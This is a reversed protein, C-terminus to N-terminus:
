EWRELIDAFSTLREGISTRYKELIVGSAIFVVAAVGGVVLWWGGTLDPAVGEILPIMVVMLLSATIAGLGVIARRRVHSLTGWVLLALGEGGLLLGYLMSTTVMDRAALALPALMVIWEALRLWDAPDLHQRQRRHREVEIMILLLASVAAVTAHLELSWMEDILILLAALWILAALHMIHPTRATTAFSAFAGGNVILTWGLEASPLGFLSIAGVMGFLTFGGALILWQTRRQATGIGAMGAAVVGVLSIVILMPVAWRDNSTLSAVVLGGSGVFALPALWGADLEATDALWSRNALVYVGASFAVGAGFLYIDRTSLLEVARALSIGGFVVTVLHTPWIWVNVLSRDSRFRTVLTAGVAAVFMIGFWLWAQEPGLQQREIAFGVVGISLGCSVFAMWSTRTVTAVVAFAAMDLGLLVMWTLYADLASLGISAAVGSIAIAAQALVAVPLEWLVIHDNETGVASVLWVTLLTMALIGMTWVVEIWDLELGRLTLGASIGILSTAVWIAPTNGRITGPVGVLVAEIGVISAWVLAADQHTFSWGAQIGAGIFTIQGLAAMPPVWLDTWSAEHRTLWRGLAAASVVTGIALLTFVIVPDALELGRLTLGASIGILSTAVWIAPTNRRITGPIGVLAAEISAIGALVLTADPVSFSTLAHVGAAVFGVQGLAVLPLVWRGTWEAHGYKLWSGLAIGSLTTGGAVAITVVAVANLDLWVTGAGFTAGWLIVAVWPLVLGQEGERRLEAMLTESVAVVALSATLWPGLEWAGASILMIGALHMWVDEARIVTLVALCLASWAMTAGPEGQNFALTISGAMVVLASLVTVPAASGLNKHSGTRPIAASVAVLTAIFPVLWVADSRIEDAFVDVYAVLLYAWVVWVLVGIRHVVLFALMSVAAAIAWAWLWHDDNVAGIIGIGVTMTGLAGAVLFWLRLETRRLLVLAAATSVLTVSIASALLSRYLHENAIGAESAGVVVAAFTLAWSLGSAVPANVAVAVLFTAVAGSALAVLLMSGDSTSIAIAGVTTAFGLVIVVIRLAQRQVAMAVIGYGIALASLPLAFRSLEITFWAIQRTALIAFPTMSVFAVIVPVERMWLREPRGAVLQEIFPGHGRDLLIAEVGCVAVVTAWAVLAADWSGLSAVIAGLLALHGYAGNPVTWHSISAAYSAGILVLSTAILVVTVIMSVGGADPDAAAMAFAIAAGDTTLVVFPLRLAWPFVAAASVIALIGLAMGIEDYSYPDRAMQIAVGSAVATAGFMAAPITAFSRLREISSPLFRAGAAAVAAVLFITPVHVLDVIRAVGTGALVFTPIWLEGLATTTSGPYPVLSGTYRRVPPAVARAAAAIAMVSWVVTSSVPDTFALAAGIVISGRAIWTAAESTGRILRDIVAIAFGYGVLAAGVWGLTTEFSLSLVLAVGASAYSAIRLAAALSNRTREGLGEWAFGAGSSIALVAALLAAAWAGPSALDSLGVNGTGSGLADNYAFLLAFGFVAPAGVVGIRVTRVSITRGVYTTRGITAIILGAGIAALVTLMQPGSMGVTWYLGLAGVVAWLMPAVGYAYIPHRTSLLFYVGACVVGVIAYGTWRSSGEQNPIWALPFWTGIGEKNNWDAGDQFLASLMIPLILAGILGVANAAVPVGTKNRLVWALGFFILPAAVFIPSRLSPTKVAEGFYGFAFFVFIVLVSLLVGLYILSNAAFDASLKSWASRLRNAARETFSPGPLPRSVKHVPRAQPEHLPAPRRTERSTTPPLVTRGAPPKKLADVEPPRASPRAPPPVDSQRTPAPFTVKPRVPTPIPATAARYMSNAYNKLDSKADDSIIGAAHAAAVFRRVAAAQEEPSLAAHEMHGNHSTPSTGDLHKSM